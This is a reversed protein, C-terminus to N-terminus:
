KDKEVYPGAAQADFQEACYMFGAYHGHRWGYRQGWVFGCAFLFAGALILQLPTM